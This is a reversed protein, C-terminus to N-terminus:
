RSVSNRDGPSWRVYADGEPERVPRRLRAAYGATWLALGAVSGTLLDRLRRAFPQVAIGAAFSLATMLGAFGASLSRASTVEEPLVVIAWRCRASCWRAPRRPRWGSGGSASDRAPGTM